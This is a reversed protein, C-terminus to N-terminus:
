EQFTRKAWAGRSTPIAYKMAAQSIPSVSQIIPSTTSCMISKWVSAGPLIFISTGHFSTPCCPMTQCLYLRSEAIHFPRERRHDTPLRLEQVHLHKTRLVACSKRSIAPITSCNPWNSSAAEKTEAM